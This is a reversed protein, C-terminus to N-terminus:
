AELCVRGKPTIGFNELFKFSSSVYLLSKEILMSNLRNLECIERLKEQFESALKLLRERSEGDVEGAVEKLTKGKMGMEDLLKEREGDLRRISNVIEGKSKLHSDIREVDLSAVVEGEVRMLDLLEGMLDLEEELLSVLREIM